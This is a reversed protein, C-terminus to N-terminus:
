LMEGVQNLARAVRDVSELIQEREGTRTRADGATVTEDDLAALRAGFRQKFKDPHFKLQERRLLQRRVDKQDATTGFFLFDFLSLRSTPLSTSETTMDLPLWPITDMSLPREDGEAILMKWGQEYEQRAKDVLTRKRLRNTPSDHDRQREQQELRERERREQRKQRQREDKRKQEEKAELYRIREQETVWDAWEKEEKEKRSRGMGRRMYSTYDEDSMTNINNNGQFTPNSSAAYSFLQPEAEYQGWHYDSLDDNALEDFLHNLWPDTQQQQYQESREQELDRAQHRASHSNDGGDDDSLTAPAFGAPTVTYKTPHANRKPKRSSSTNAGKFRLRTASAGEM